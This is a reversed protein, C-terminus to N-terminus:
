IEKGRPECSATFLFFFSINVIGSFTIVSTRSRLFLKIVACVRNEAYIIQALSQHKVENNTIELSETKDAPPKSTEQEL